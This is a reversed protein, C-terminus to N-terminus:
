FYMCNVAILVFLHQLNHTISTSFSNQEQGLFQLLQRTWPKVNGKTYVPKQNISIKKKKIAVRFVKCGELLTRFM